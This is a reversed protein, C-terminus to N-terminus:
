APKRGEIWVVSQGNRWSHFLPNPLDLEFHCNHENSINDKFSFAVADNICAHYLQVFSMGVPRALVLKGVWLPFIHALVGFIEDLAAELGVWLLSECDVGDNLVLPDRHTVNTVESYQSQANEGGEDVQDIANLNIIQLASCPM